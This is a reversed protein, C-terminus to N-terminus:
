KGEQIRAYAKDLDALVLNRQKSAMPALGNSSLHGIVENLLIYFGRASEKRASGGRAYKSVWAAGDKKITAIADIRSKDQVDLM